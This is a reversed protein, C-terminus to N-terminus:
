RKTCYLNVSTESAQLREVLAPVDIAERPLLGGKEDICSAEYNLSSLRNFLEVPDVGANRLLSPNFEVILRLRDSRQLLQEMGALVDMEAGEVDVKVLDVPPWGESELFADLSTTEVVESGTQTSEHRYTSHRGNDLSTLYLTSSGVRNSVAKRLPVINDYGNLEANKVLLSHNAPEPEFAYVKGAPGANRAALLSYYGVHAGVDIVVTGPEIISQFLSTTEQEYRGMAMDLPPYRGQSALFMRHGQVEVEDGASQLTRFVLRGALPGILKRVPKILGTARVVSRAMSYARYALKNAPM